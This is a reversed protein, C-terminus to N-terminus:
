GGSQQFLIKRISGFYLWVAYLFGPFGQLIPMRAKEDMM